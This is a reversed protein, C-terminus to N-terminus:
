NNGKKKKKIKIGALSGSAGLLLIAYGFVSTDGTKVATTIKKVREAVLAPQKPVSATTEPESEQPTPEESTPAEPTEEEPTPNFSITQDEDTIDTHKAIVHNGFYLWEFVVLSEGGLETADFTFTVEAVGSKEEPVFEAETEVTKGQIELPKETEKQYLVGKIKYTNGPILNEYAVRDVITVEKAADMLRDGTDANGASTGIKPFYITQNEDTIDKHEAILEEDEYAEEFVVVRKGSFETGDFNLELEVTGNKDTVTILKEATIPNGELDLVVDGTEQDM